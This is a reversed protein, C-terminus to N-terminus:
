GGVCYPLFKSIHALQADTTTLPPALSLVNAHTGGPLLILGQELGRKLVAPMLEPYPTKSARDRVLEIGIMLGAGRVDGIHPNEATAARIDALLREGATRSRAVLDRERIEKLVAIAAACWVPNGFFTSTHPAEATTPRWADMVEPRGAVISGPYGGGLAKGACLLDPVVGTHECAWLTGTRGLGTFIEDCILLLGLEDCLARLGPLFSAPPVVDGERGQFPEVLVCGAPLGREDLAGAAASVSQLCRALDQDEGFGEARRYPNPFAAHAVHRGLQAAFPASFTERSSVALTGYSQGHFGGRFAIVGPRGTYVAACKLALEVADAGSLGYMVRALGPPLVEQLAEAFRLRIAPAMFDSMAHVLHHTQASAAAVVRPNRHGVSAVGFASTTDIYLNGDADLVNAGAAAEWFIPLDGNALTSIAPSEVLALRRAYERSRSGPPPVVIRPLLEGFGTPEVIM